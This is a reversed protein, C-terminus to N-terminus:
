RNALFGLVAASLEGVAAFPGDGHAVGAIEVFQGLPVAAAMERGRSPPFCLDHEFAVVLLPRDIEGWRASRTGDLLWDREAAFQGLRGADSQGLGGALLALWMEVTDDDDQLVKAPVAITVVSLQDFSAPLM